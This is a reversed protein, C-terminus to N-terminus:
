RSLIKMIQELHISDHLTSLFLQDHLSFPGRKPHQAVRDWADDAVRQLFDLHDSRKVALAALIARWPQANYNETRALEDPAPFPLPPNDHEVTLRARELFLAEFDRLHELVETITWGDGGDHVSTYLTDDAHKELLLQLSHLNQHMITIQWGRINGINM